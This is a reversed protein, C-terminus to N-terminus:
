VDPICCFAFLYSVAPREQVVVLLQAPKRDAAQLVHLHNWSQLLSNSEQGKLGM